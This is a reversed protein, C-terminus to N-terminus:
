RPRMPPSATGAGRVLGAVLQRLAQVGTYRPRFGLSREARATDLVPAGAGMDFWGPGVPALRAHWAAALATRVPAHPMERWRGRSVLDAVDAARVLGPGAINYPGRAQRVITERYADALDDAHVAQLRFGAPWPLVPLRNDLIGAPVFPGLFYRHIEHGAAHQFVLAPRLRAIALTPYRLEAEDLLREVAVKDMSYDSSRVGGTDWEEDRPEDTYSPSYAGVSSAVVLHPVRADVVAGLVRRMGDVNVRRLQDRDHSPQILWALNVVADAGGFARRLREVVPADPGPEGIDVAHWDVTDYPAPPTGRPVRRVVGGLSTVTPDDRLRRLLATGVNGSAGVVVVRM